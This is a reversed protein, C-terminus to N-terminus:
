KHERRLHLLHPKPPPLQLPSRQHESSMGEYLHVLNAKGECSPQHNQKGEM